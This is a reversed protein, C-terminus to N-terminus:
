YFSSSVGLSNIFDDHHTNYLCYWVKNALLIEVLGGTLQRDLSVCFPSTRTIEELDFPNDICVAATLPSTEGAEALYKTLMNAGYGRGVGM